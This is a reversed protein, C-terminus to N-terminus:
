HVLKIQHEKLRLAFCMGAINRFIIDFVALLIISVGFPIVDAFTQSINPPVEEPM